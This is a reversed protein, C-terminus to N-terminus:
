GYASYVKNYYKLLFLGFLSALLFVEAPITHRRKVLPSRAGSCRTLLRNFRIKNNQNNM